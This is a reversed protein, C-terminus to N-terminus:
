LYSHLGAVLFSSLATVIVYACALVALWKAATNRKQIFVLQGASVVLFLMLTLTEKPDWSWYSGWAIQAWVMGTVLGLLTFVWLARGVNKTLPRTLYNEKFLLVTFLFCLVYGVIALPPHIYLMISDLNHDTSTSSQNTPQVTPAPTPTPGPTSTSTQIPQTPQETPENSSAPHNTPTPNLTAAPSTPQPTSTGEQTPIPTPSPTPTPTWDPNDLVTLQPSPVYRDNYRLSEHTTIASASIVLTDSGPSSGTIQWTATATGTPLYGINFTPNKVTFHNNQSSLTVAVSDFTNDSPVNNINQIVVSVTATQGVKISAPFVDQSSGEVLDLQMSYANGHCVICQNTSVSVAPALFLAIVIVATAILILYSLVRPTDTPLQKTLGVTKLFFM